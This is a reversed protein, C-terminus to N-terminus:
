KTRENLWTLFDSQSRTVYVEYKDQILHEIVEQLNEGHYNCWSNGTTLGSLLRTVFEGDAFERRTIFGRENHPARIGIYASETVESLLTYPPDIIVKKMRIDGTHKQHQCKISDFSEAAAM